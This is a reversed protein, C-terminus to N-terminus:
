IKYSRNVFDILEVSMSNKQNVAEKLPTDYFGVGDFGIACGFRGGEMMQFAKMGFQQSVFLDWSTPFAGRQTYGIINCRVQRKVEKEISVCLEPLSPLGFGHQEGFLKETVLIVIGKKGSKIMEKIVEILASVGIPREGTIVYDVAGAVAAAVTLDHCHRGMAEVFTVQSHSESTSRIKKVANLIEELASFYGITYKSSGVDNDITGPAAIVNFSLESVLHAGMYSGDGGIVFLGDFGNKRLNEVADERVKSDKFELCRSSGIATGSLYVNKKFERPCLKRFEGHVLGRYGDVAAYVEVGKHHASVLFGYIAANM